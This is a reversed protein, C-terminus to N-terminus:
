SEMELRRLALNIYNHFDSSKQQEGGAIVVIPRRDNTYSREKVSSTEKIIERLSFSPSKGLPSGSWSGLSNADPLSIGGFASAAVAQMYPARRMIGGAFTNMLAMGSYTLTSLPGEKADSHPLLNRLKVLGARVVKAPLNIVAQIGNTFAQILAKGSNWLDVARGKITAVVRTIAGGVVTSLQDWTRVFFANVQDWNRWLLIVAAVLALIGVVIWTIPNALLAVTFSWISAILGPLARTAALIASRAFALIEQTVVTIIPKLLILGAHIYKFMNWLLGAAGMAAKGINGLSVLTYGAMMILGAGVTLIPAIIALAATGILTILLITRVLSPHAKSLDKFGLVMQMINPVVAKILPSLQEGILEKFNVINQNVIQMQAGLDSNMTRAIEETYATGRGMSQNMIDVNERLQTIKPYLLNILAVAEDTGFAKQIQQQEMADLTEGYKGRLKDLIDAMSLLNNNADVFSLGLTQGARGASQMFAKYKTGSESGSMTAQLMGLVALQEEFPRQASTAAAGLTTLAQAMGSGSSKFQQVAATIGASFMEGFQMDDMNSYFDKYIGYGTAFLSTMEATTSKTAKGTLASMRTYQAVASDSLSEIGGKIDYAAAIFDPQTTGAWENSFQASVARLADMDRIGVSALEGLAGEVNEVPEMLSNLARMGSDAAGQVLAGSVAMRNGFEVMGKGKGILKDFDTVTKAM